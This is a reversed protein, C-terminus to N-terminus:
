RFGRMRHEHDRACQACRITKGALVKLREPEIDQDCDICIGDLGDARPLFSAEIRSLQRRVAADRDRQEIEQAREIDDTM